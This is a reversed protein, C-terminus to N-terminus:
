ESVIESSYKTIEYEIQEREHRQNEELNFLPPFYSDIEAQKVVKVVVEIPVKAKL